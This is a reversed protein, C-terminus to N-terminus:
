GDTEASGGFGQGCLRGYRLVTRSAMIVMIQLYLKGYNTLLFSWSKLTDTVM